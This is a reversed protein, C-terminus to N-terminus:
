DIFHFIADILRIAATFIYLTIAWWGVNVIALPFSILVMLTFLQIFRQRPKSVLVIIFLILVAWVAGGILPAAMQLDHYADVGPLPTM